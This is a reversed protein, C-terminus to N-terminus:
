EFKPTLNGAKCLKAKSKLASITLEYLHLSVSLDTRLPIDICINDTLTKSFYVKWFIHM